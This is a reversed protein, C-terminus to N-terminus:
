TYAEFAITEAITAGDNVIVAVAAGPEGERPAACAFNKLEGRQLPAQTLHRVFRPCRIILLSKKPVYKVPFVLNKATKQFFIQGTLFELGNDAFRKLLYWRLIWTHRSQLRLQEPLNDLLVFTSWVCKWM